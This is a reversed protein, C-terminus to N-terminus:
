SPSVTMYGKTLCKNKDFLKGNAIVLIAYIHGVVLGGM